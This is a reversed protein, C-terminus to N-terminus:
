VKKLEWKHKGKVQRVARDAQVRTFKDADAEEGWSAPGVLKRYFAHSGTMTGAAFVVYKPISFNKGSKCLKNYVTHLAGIHDADFSALCSDCQYITREEGKVRQIKGFCGPCTMAGHEKEAREFWRRYEDSIENLRIM